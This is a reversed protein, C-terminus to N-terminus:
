CGTYRWIDCHGRWRSGDLIPKLNPNGQSGEVLINSGSKQADSMFLVGDVVFLRLKERYEMFREIEDEVDYVLANGYRKRYGEALKRLRKEFTNENFMQAITIGCRTAMSAYAPGIGRKTTGISGAGRETEM